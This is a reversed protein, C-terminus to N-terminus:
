AADAAYHDLLLPWAELLYNEAEVESQAAQRLLAEIQEASATQQDQLWAAILSQAQAFLAAGDPAPPADAAELLALVTDGIRQAFAARSEDEARRLACDTGSVHLSGGEYRLELRM